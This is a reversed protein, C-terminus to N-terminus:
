DLYFRGDDGFGPTGRPQPESSVPPSSPQIFEQSLPDFTGSGSEIQEDLGPSLRLNPDEQIIVPIEEEVIEDLDSEISVVRQTRGDKSKILKYVQFNFLEQDSYNASQEISNILEVNITPSLPKALELLDPAIGTKRQSKFLSGSIWIVVTVFSFIMIYLAQQKIRLTSLKKKTKIPKM